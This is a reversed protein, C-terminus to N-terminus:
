IFHNDRQRAQRACRMAPSRPEERRYGGIPAQPVWALLAARQPRKASPLIGWLSRSMLCIMREGQWVNGRPTKGFAAHSWTVTWTEKNRARLFFPQKFYVLGTYGEHPESARLTRAARAVPWM